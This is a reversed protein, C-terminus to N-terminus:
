EKWGGRDYEAHTLVSRVSIVQWQYEIRTVLRSRNGRINFVTLPAVLDATPFDRRVETLNRCSARKVADHWRQLAPVADRHREAFESVAKWGIVNM